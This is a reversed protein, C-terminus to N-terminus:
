FQTMFISFFEKKKRKLRSVFEQIGKDLHFALIIEKVTWLVTNLCNTLIWLTIGYSSNASNGKGHQTKLHSLAPQVSINPQQQAILAQRPNLLAVQWPLAVVMIACLLAHVANRATDNQMHDEPQVHKTYVSMSKVTLLRQVLLICSHKSQSPM